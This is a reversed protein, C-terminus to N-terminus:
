LFRRPHEISIDKEFTLRFWTSTLRNWVVPRKRYGRFVDSFRLNEMMNWEYVQPSWCSINLFYNSSTSIIIATLQKEFHETTSPQCPESYAELDSYGLTRFLSPNQIHRQNQITRFKGKTKFIGPNQIYWLKSYALTVCPESYSHIIGSYARIHRVIDRYTQIHTFM